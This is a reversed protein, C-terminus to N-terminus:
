STLYSTKSGNIDGLLKATLMPVLKKMAEDEAQRAQDILYDRVM